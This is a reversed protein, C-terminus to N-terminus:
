NKDHYKQKVEENTFLVRVVPNGKIKLLMWERENKDKFASLYHHFFSLREGKTANSLFPIGFINCLDESVPIDNIPIDISNPSEAIFAFDGIIVGRMQNIFYFYDKAM